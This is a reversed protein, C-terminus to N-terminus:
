YTRPWMCAQPVLLYACAVRVSDDCHGFALPAHAESWCGLVSIGAGAGCTPM